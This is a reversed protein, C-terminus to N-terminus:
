FYHNPKLHKIHKYETLDGVYCRKKKFEKSNFFDIANISHDLETNFFSNIIKTQSGLVIGFENNKCYFLYFIFPM